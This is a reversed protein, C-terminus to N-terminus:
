SGKRRAYIEVLIITILSSVATLAAVIEISPVDVSFPAISSIVDGNAGVLFKNSANNVFHLAWPILLSGTRWAAWGWTLATLLYPVMALPNGGWASVNAIHLAGFILAQGLIAVWVSGTFRFFTQQLLGRFLLEEAGTQVLFGVLSVAILAVGASKLGDFGEYTVPILLPQFISSLLAVALAIVIGILFVRWQPPWSPLVLTWPSRGLLSPALLMIAIASPFFSYLKGVDSAAFQPDIYAMGIAYFIPMIFLLLPTGIIAALAYRWRAVSDKGAWDLYSNKTTQGDPM